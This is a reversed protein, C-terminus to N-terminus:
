LSGASRILVESSWSILAALEVQVCQHGLPIGQLLDVIGDRIQSAPTDM